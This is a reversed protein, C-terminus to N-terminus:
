GKTMETYDNASGSELNEFELIGPDEKLERGRLFYVTCSKKQPTQTSAWPLHHLLDIVADGLLSIFWSTDPNKKDKYSWLNHLFGHYVPSPWGWLCGQSTPHKKGIWSPWAVNKKKELLVPHKVPSLKKSPAPRGIWLCNFCGVKKKNLDRPKWWPINSKKGSIVGSIKQLLRVQRKVPLSQFSRHKLNLTCEGFFLMTALIWYSCSIGVMNVSLDVTMNRWFAM